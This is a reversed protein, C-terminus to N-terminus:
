RHPVSLVDGICRKHHQASYCFGKQPSVPCRPFCLGFGVRRHARGWILNCTSIEDARCKWGKKGLCSEKEAEGENIVINKSQKAKSIKIHTKKFCFTYERISKKVGICSKWWRSGRVYRNVSICQVKCSNWVDYDDMRYCRQLATTPLHGELSRRRLGLLPFWSVVASHRM